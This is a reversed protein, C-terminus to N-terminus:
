GGGYEYSIIGPNCNIVDLTRYKKNEIARDFEDMFEVKRGFKHYFLERCQALDHAAIVCMGPTYDYLVEKIVFLKMQQDKM